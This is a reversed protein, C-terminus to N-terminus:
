IVEEVPEILEVEYWGNTDDTDVCCYTNEGDRTVEMGEDAIIRYTVEYECDPIETSVTVGGGERTYRYMEKIEM